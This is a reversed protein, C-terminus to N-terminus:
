LQSYLAAPCTMCVFVVDICDLSNSSVLDAVPNTEFVKTQARFFVMDGQNFLENQIMLLAMGNSIPATSTSANKVWGAVCQCIDATEPSLRQIPICSFQSFSVGTQM